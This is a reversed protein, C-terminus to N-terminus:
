SSVTFPSACGVTLEIWGTAAAIDVMYSATLRRRLLGKIPSKSSLQPLSPAENAPVAVVGKRLILLALRTDRDGLSLKSLSLNGGDVDVTVRRPSSRTKTSWLMSEWADVNMAKAITSVENFHQNLFVTLEHTNRHHANAGSHFLVKNLCDSRTYAPGGNKEKVSAIFM